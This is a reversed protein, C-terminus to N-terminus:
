KEKNHSSQIFIASAAALTIVFYLAILVILATGLSIGLEEFMMTGEDYEQNALYNYWM